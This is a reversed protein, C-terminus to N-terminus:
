KSNTGVHKYYEFHQIMENAFNIKSKDHHGYIITIIHLKFIKYIEEGSLNVFYQLFIRLIQQMYLDAQTKNLNECISISQVILMFNHGLEKKVIERRQEYHKNKEDTNFYFKGNCLKFYCHKTTDKLSINTLFVTEFNYYTMKSTLEPVPIMSLKYLKQERNEDDYISHNFVMDLENKFAIESLFIGFPCQWIFGKKFSTSGIGYVAIVEFTLVDNRAVPAYIEHTKYFKYKQEVNELSYQPKSIIKIDM